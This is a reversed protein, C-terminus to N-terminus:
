IVWMKNLDIACDWKCATQNYPLDVCVLQVSKDPIKSFINFCDDNYIVSEM